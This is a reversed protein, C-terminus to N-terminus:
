LETDFPLLEPQFASGEGTWPSFAFYATQSFTKVVEIRRKAKDYSREEKTRDDDSEYESDSSIEKNLKKEVSQKVAVQPDSEKEDSTKDEESGESEGEESDESEEM